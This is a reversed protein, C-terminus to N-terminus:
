FLETLKDDYNLGALKWERGNNYFIFVWRLAYREYRLLYVLRLLSRGVQQQSIFDVDVVKGYSSQIKPLQSRLSSNLSELEDLSLLSASKLMNFGASYEQISMAHMVGDTLDKVDSVNDITQCTAVLPAAILLVLSALLKM